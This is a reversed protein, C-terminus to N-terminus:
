PEAAQVIAVYGRTCNSWCMSARETTLFKLYPGNLSRKFLKGDILSFKAYQVQIKHEKDKENPIEGTNIYLTILDMWSPSTEGVLNVRITAISSDAQYYIPLFITETIPLSAAVAAIADAKENSVRPVHELKWTSFGALRQKVLDVYKTM